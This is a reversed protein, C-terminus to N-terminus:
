GYIHEKLYTVSEDLELTNVMRSQNIHNFMRYILMPDDGVNSISNVRDVKEDVYGFENDYTNWVKIAAQKLDEFVEQSAQEM